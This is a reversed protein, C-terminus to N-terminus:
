QIDIFKEQNNPVEEVKKLSLKLTGNELKASIDKETLSEGVYFSRSTSGFFRERRIYHGNEDKKENQNNHTVQITLYGEKLSLKIDERKTSPVDIEVLYHDGEDKVDAKMLNPERREPGFPFDFFDRFFPDGLEYDRNLLFRNKSM